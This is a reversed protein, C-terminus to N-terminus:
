KPLSQSWKFSKPALLAGCDQCNTLYAGHFVDHFDFFPVKFREHVTVQGKDDVLNVPEVACAVTQHEELGVAAVFCAAAKGHADGVDHVGFVGQADLVVVADHGDLAGPLVGACVYAVAGCAFIFGDLIGRLEALGGVAGAAEVVVVGHGAPLHFGPEREGVPM